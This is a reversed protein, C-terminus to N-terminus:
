RGCRMYENWKRKADAGNKGDVSLGCKMCVYRVFGKGDSVGVWRERRNCGCLCPEFREYPKTQKELAKIGMKLAEDYDDEQNDEVMGILNDLLDIAKENTM